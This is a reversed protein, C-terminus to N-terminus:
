ARVEIAAHVSRLASAGGGVAATVRKMSGLRVDGAAFVGPISTEFPLPGRALATGPRASTDPRQTHGM